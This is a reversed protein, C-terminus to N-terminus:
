AADGCEHIVGVAAPDTGVGMALLCEDCYCGYSVYIPPWSQDPKEVCFPQVDGATACRDCRGRPWNSAPWSAFPAAAFDRQYRKLWEEAPLSESKTRRRKAVPLSEARALAIGALVVAVLPVVRSAKV